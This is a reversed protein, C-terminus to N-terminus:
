EKEDEPFLEEVTTGFVDAAKKKFEESAETRFNEVMSLYPASCGLLAALEYQKLGAEWRKIKIINKMVAGQALYVNM